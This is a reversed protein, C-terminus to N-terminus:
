PAAVSINSRGGGRWMEVRRVETTRRTRAFSPLGVRQLGEEIGQRAAGGCGPAWGAGKRGTGAAGGGFPARDAGAALGVLRKVFDTLATATGCATHWDQNTM